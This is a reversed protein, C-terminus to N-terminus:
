LGGHLLVGGEVAIIQGTMYASAASALYLMLGTMDDPVAVRGLPFAQGIQEIQKEREDEPLFAFLGEFLKTRTAGPAIANVRIKYPALELAMSRTAMNVGAKSISYIGVQAQPQFGDISSVNIISGATNKEKMVRAVAQTLFYLGKLNLNIVSDWLKEQAELITAYAPSTAANNVLIDITGFEATVQDVISQVQEMRGMHAAVPLSKRGKARIEEAVPALNEMKRSVIAVDAGADAFALATARGIGMSGGTVLATKGELSFLKHMDM